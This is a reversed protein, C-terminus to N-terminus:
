AKIFGLPSKDSAVDYFNGLNPFLKPLTAKEAGFWMALEAYVEDTSTTPIMVGGGVDLPNADGLSLAPYKGYVEGGKVANGMVLTNGGWGHDTGNGNSTLSRGFDSGTFTVVEEAVGLDELAQQFGSLADDVIGLMRNHTKLLESHHDWGIYRVFFTQQQGAMGLAARAKITKAVMELQQALESDGGKWDVTIAKTADEFKEFQVQSYKVGNVYTKDFSSGSTSELMDNFGKLLVDNLEKLAPNSNDKVTLGVSGSKTIAYERSEVGNQMINSGALSINMSIADNAKDPQVVDAITGFWGSNLRESPRSTQWHKFQDSHSMLGLPLPKSNARYEAKTVKDVMPGVNAIFSLKKDNFLKQTKELAPHLGFQKGQQFSVDNLNLLENKAIALGGRTDEYEKYDATTRPVLMNFSDNGGDLMIFVLSKAQKAVKLPGAVPPTVPPNVPPTVPPTVPTGANDSGGGCGSLM